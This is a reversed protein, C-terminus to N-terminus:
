HKTDKTPLINALQDFKQMEKQKLEEVIAIYPKMAKGDSHGTWKMIVESPISMTLATVVFTRRACHSTLLNYKPEVTEKRSSAVYYTRKVPSDIRALKGLEKLYDNMKQNSIVPLALATPTDEYKALIQRTVANLEITLHESTKKTVVAIRGNKVDNKELKQVDSYRLGSFCCFLFVDRVQELYRKGQLEVTALRKLEPATLYIIDQEITKFKPCFYQWQSPATWGKGDTWRLVWRIIAFHKKATTNRCGSRHLYNIFAQLTSEDIDSLKLRKNWTEVHHQVVRVRATTTPTWDNRVGMDMIYQGIAEHLTHPKNEAETRFLARLANNTPIIDDLDCRTFYQVVAATKATIEAQLRPAKNKQPRQNKSDWDKPMIRNDLRIRFRSNGYTVTLRVPSKDKGKTELAYTISYRM